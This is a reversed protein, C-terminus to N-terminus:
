PQAGETPSPADAAAKLKAKISVLIRASSTKNEVKEVSVVGIDPHQKVQTIFSNLAGITTSSVDITLTDKTITLLNVTVYQNSFSYFDQFQVARESALTNIKKALALRDQLNRYLEENEVLHSVIFGKTKISDHTDILQRDISFRYLFMLLATTETIIVLLRGVTLAWGLFKDGFGKNQGRLLNISATDKM